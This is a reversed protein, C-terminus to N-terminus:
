TSIFCVNSSSMLLEFDTEQRANGFLTLFYNVNEPCELSSNIKEFVIM